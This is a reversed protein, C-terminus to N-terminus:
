QEGSATGEKKGPIEIKGSKAVRIADGVAQKAAIVLKRVTQLDTHLKDRMAKAEKRIASESSGTLTYDKEAQAAVAASASAITSRANTIAEKAQNPDKIDPKGQNVRAELKDLITSMLNLHKLMADTQNKNIRNLNNSIREAIQAKRQDRFKLLKAKLAAERSAIKTRIDEIKQILNAERSALKNELKQIPPNARKQLTDIARPTTSNEALVPSVLLVASLLSIAVASKITM